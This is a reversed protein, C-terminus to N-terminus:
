SEVTMHASATKQMLRKTGVTDFAVEILADGGMPSVNTVTGRGFAKHNVTSGKTFSVEPSPTVSYPRSGTARQSSVGYPRGETTRRVTAEVRMDGYPAAKVAHEAKEVCENPLEGIFRSVPSYNSQGYLTRSASYTIHLQRRARTIAVYCLRREEELDMPDLSRLSPFIGEELGAIFVTPFELGKASHITMLVAANAGADYNEVDTALSVSELFESLTGEAFDDGFKKITSKLEMVNEARGDSEFDNKERLVRVYGTTELLTDYLETLPMTDILDRLNEYIKYFRALAPHASQKIIDMMPVGKAAAEAIVGGITKDGIGRPPINIIRTLRLDDAPNNLIHLYALMDRIEARDFFRTGGIVRYPISRRRLAEEIRNSLANIRYLIAMDSYKGGGNVHREICDAIYDAEYYDNEARCLSIPQGSGTDTWLSKGTRGLNNEILNNAATLINQTSRYNQELRIVTADPYEKEFSLINEITAGRFRYISQDDDGVVFINRSKASLMACLKYQLTNTDQYEDVLLARFKRQYFELVDPNKEFLEVTKLLIDDFDLANNLRLRKVYLTYIEQIQKGGGFNEEYRSPPVDANKERSICAHMARPNFQKPDLQLDNLCMKVIRASDDTDYITFDKTYGLREIDRRLIKSCAAHFTFAWVDNAGIGLQKTLRSRLEEAAKKTFTIALIAYPLVGRERILYAIREILVTTKGSGAGALVLVPGDPATIAEIQRPNLKNM